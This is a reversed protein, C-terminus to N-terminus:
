TSTGTSVGSGAATFKAGQVLSLTPQVLQLQQQPVPRGTRDEGQHEERPFAPLGTSSQHAARKKKTAPPHERHQSGTTTELAQLAGKELRSFCFSFQVRPVPEVM